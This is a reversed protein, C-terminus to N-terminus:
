MMVPLTINGGITKVNYTHYSAKILGLFWCLKKSSVNEKLISYKEFKEHVIVHALIINMNSIKM